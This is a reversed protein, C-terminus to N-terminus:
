KNQSPIRTKTELKESPVNKPLFLLTYNKRWTHLSEDKTTTPTRNQWNGCARSEMKLCSSNTTQFGLAQGTMNTLWSFGRLNRFFGTSNDRFSGFLRGRQSFYWPLKCIICNTSFSIRRVLQPQYNTIGSTVDKAWSKLCVNRRQSRIQSSGAFFDAAVRHFLQFWWILKLIKELDVQPIFWQPVM